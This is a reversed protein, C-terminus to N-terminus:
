SGLIIPWNVGMPRDIVTISRGFSSNQCLLYRLKEASLNSNSPSSTNTKKKPRILFDRLSKETETALQYRSGTAQGYKEM